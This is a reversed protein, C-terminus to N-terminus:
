AERVTRELLKELLTEDRVIVPIKVQTLSIGTSEVRWHRCDAFTGHPVICITPLGMKNMDINRQINEHQGKLVELVQTRALSPNPGIDGDLEVVYGVTPPKARSNFYSTFELIRGLTDETTSIIADLIAKAPLTADVMRLEPYRREVFSMIPFGNASEFGEISILDGLRYRWLGDKSTLVPEYTKGTEVQWVPILCDATEKESIEVASTQLFEYYDDGALTYLNIGSYTVGPWCESLVYGPSRLSVDSNFYSQVKSLTGSWAGTVIGTYEKFNPWIKTLWGLSGKMSEVSRLEAAREPNASFHPELYSRVRETGEFDPLTGTEISALLKDWEEEVFTVLDILMTGYATYLTELRREALAFLAHMLIFSRYNDIFSVALPSTLPPVKMRMAGQDQDFGMNFLTRLMAASATCVPVNAALQGTEDEVLFTRSTGLHMVLCNFMSRTSASGEQPNTRPLGYRPYYKLSKGTTMSSFTVYSPYGTSLLNEVEAQKCPKEFLKRIFPDYADYYSLPVTNRFRETLVEAASRNDSPDDTYNRFAHLALSETAYRSVRNRQIIDLLVNEFHQRLKQSLEPTLLRLPISKPPDSQSM